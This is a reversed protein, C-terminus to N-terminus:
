AGGPAPLSSVAPLDDPGIYEISYPSETEAPASNITYSNVRFVDDEASLAVPVGQCNPYSIKEYGTILGAASYIASYANLTFPKGKLGSGATPPTYSAIGYGKDTDVKSTHGEEGWYKITGGQFLKVLEPVFVNDTLTVANGTLVHNVPKQSLLKGKVILKIANMATARDYEKEGEKLDSYPLLDPHKLAKDDREPGYTWGDKMRNKSWIEHTNEAIAETLESLSDPLHVDSLDLPSPKYLDAVAEKTNIKVMYNRSDDWADMFRDIAITQPMEGHYPNYCVMDDGCSLVVLAHDPNKGIFVDEAAEYDFDGDVEGGDVAVIVQYNQSLAIKIEEISSNYTRTASLGHLSCLSGIRFLPTGGEEMWGASRAEKILTEEDLEVGFCQLVYQECRVNCLNDSNGNAAMALMPLTSDQPSALSLYERFRADNKAVRLVAIAEEPTANGELFAAVVDDTLILKKNEMNM